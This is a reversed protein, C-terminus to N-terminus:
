LELLVNVQNRFRQVLTQFKEVNLGKDTRFLFFKIGLGLNTSLAAVMLHPTFTNLYKLTPQLYSNVLRM